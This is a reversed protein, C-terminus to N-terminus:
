IFIATNSIANPALVTVVRYPSGREGDVRWRASLRSKESRYAKEIHRKAVIMIGSIIWLATNVYNGTILINLDVNEPCPANRNLFSNGVPPSLGRIRRFAPNFRHLEPVSPVTRIPSFM